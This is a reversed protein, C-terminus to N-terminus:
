IKREWVGFLIQKESVGCFKQKQSVPYKIVKNVNEQIHIQLIAKKMWYKNFGLLPSGAMFYTLSVSSPFFQLGPSHATRHSCYLNLTVESFSTTYSHASDLSKLRMLTSLLCNYDIDDQVSNLWMQDTDKSSLLTAIVSRQKMKQKFLVNRKIELYPNRSFCLVKKKQKGRLIIVRSIFHKGKFVLVLMQACTLILKSTQQRLHCPIYHVALSGARTYHCQGLSHDGSAWFWCHKKQPLHVKM